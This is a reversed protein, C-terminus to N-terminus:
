NNDQTQLQQLQTNKNDLKSVSTNFLLSLYYCQMSETIATDDSGGGSGKGGGFDPDKFFGGISKQGTSKTSTKSNTYDLTFKDKDRILRLGYVKQGTDKTGLTFPRKDKIKKNAITEYDLGKYLGGSALYKDKFRKPALAGM